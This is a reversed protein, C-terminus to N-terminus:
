RRALVKRLRQRIETLGSDLRATWFADKAADWKTTFVTDVRRHWYATKRSIGAEKAAAVVSGAERLKRLFPAHWAFVGTSSASRM